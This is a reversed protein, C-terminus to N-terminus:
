RLTDAHALLEDRFDPHAVDALAVAREHVTRGRLSAVGYETVVLDLQHRPTTVVAGAALQAAIRSIREGAVVATSPMCLLARDELEFGAVSVFDEHGGIGSFQRNGITDAVAQGWLDITLAGNITVMKNNRSVVEPSNVTEVPLFRVQDSGDLFENLEATGAAFTTISMGPYQGKRANSVKGALHLRMLGTTFMESHIGYDGGDDEALMTAISSPIAGIGTQLTSGDTIFPRVHQAIQRDVDSPEGDALVFMPRDSEILVDVQDLHVRHPADPLLGMTRPAQPNIEAVLIREPDAAARRIEHYTAGAHLSLSLWGHEDPPAVLTAVVRPKLREAIPTFRRFDSPVFQIDAGTDLLFREAPGYFGSLYHVGPKAFFSFLDILLAGFITVDEYDDRDGLAHLFASPQGPGLPVGITDVPRVLAAAEAPTHLKPRPM